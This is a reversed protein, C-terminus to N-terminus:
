RQDNQHKFKVCSLSLRAVNEAIMREEDGRIVLVLTGQGSIVWCSEAPRLANKAADVRFGFHALPALIKERILAANEGVGATFILADLSSVQSLYAGITKQIAYVYIDIALAAQPDGSELAAVLNRMDNEQALGMLGSQKNLLTDIETGTFGQDLLYLPIAPDIDGCRTGMVLGALPTMGMSTDCSQGNKILCASAGNGLHLSIFNCDGLPKNLFRSAQLAVYEHNIGHFGYRRIQFKEAVASNIGYQRAKQPMHHHFATDFVAVELAEPFHQMAFAIGLANVPNHIPALSSLEQIKKLVDRDIVTPEYFFDGGHVVRHGIGDMPQDALLQKLQQELATFAAQHNRYPQASRHNKEQHIYEWAGNAEGIGSILGSLLVEFAGPKGRFVKYKVSSSGANITLINM